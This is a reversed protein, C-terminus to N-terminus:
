SADMQSRIAQVAAKWAKQYVPNGDLREIVNIALMFASRRAEERELDVRRVVNAEAANLTQRILDEKVLTEPSKEIITM